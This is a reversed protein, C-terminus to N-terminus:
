LELATRLCHNIQEMTTASLSGIVKAIHQQRITYINSCNIVSPRRLGSQKWDPHQQDILLQTNEISRRITTTVQVVITNSMRTNDRNNQVVLAPRVGASPITSRFDVIVLNSRM